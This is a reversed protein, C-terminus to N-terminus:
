NCAYVLDREYIENVRNITTAVASMVSQKTGGHFRSYEYTTAIALRYTRLPYM